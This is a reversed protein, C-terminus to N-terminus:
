CRLTQEMFWIPPERLSQNRQIADWMYYHHARWAPGNMAMGEQRSLGRLKSYARRPSSPDVDMRRAARM